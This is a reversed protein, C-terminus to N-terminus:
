CSVHSAELDNLVIFTNMDLYNLEYLPENAPLRDNILFDPAFYPSLESNFSQCIGLETVTRKLKFRPVSGIRVDYDYNNTLKDVVQFQYNLM